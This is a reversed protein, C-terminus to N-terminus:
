KDWLWFLCTKDPQGSFYASELGSGADARYHLAMVPESMSVFFERLYGQGDQRYVVQELADKISLQRQYSGHEKLEPINADIHLNGAPLYSQRIVLSTKKVIPKAEEYEGDFIKQRLFDWDVDTNKNEKSRGTGSWLTDLNLEIKEERLRGYSMAGMSGNGLPLAENWAEAPRDFALTLYDM